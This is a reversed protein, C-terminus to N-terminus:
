TLEVTSPDWQADTWTGWVRGRCIMAVAMLNSTAPYKVTRATDNFLRFETTWSSDSASLQYGVFDLSVRSRAARLSVLLPV